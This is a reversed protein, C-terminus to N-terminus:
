VVGGGVDMKERLGMNAGSLIAMSREKEHERIANKAGAISLAQRSATSSNQEANVGFRAMSNANSQTAARLSSEMNEGVRNIQETALQGSSAKELLEKQKPYFRKEWDDYMKRTLEAYTDAAIGM